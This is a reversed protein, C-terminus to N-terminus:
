KSTDNGRNVNETYVEGLAPVFVSLLGDPEAHGPYHGRWSRQAYGSARTEPDGRQLVVRRRFRRAGTSVVPAGYGLALVGVM